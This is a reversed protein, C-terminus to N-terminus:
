GTASAPVAHLGPWAVPGPRLGPDSLVFDTVAEAMQRNTFCFRFSQDYVSILPDRRPSPNDPDLDVNDATAQTLFLLPRVAGWNAARMAEALEKARYSSWGGVVALPAPDRVALAKVWDEQTADDTVKYWRIRLSGAYGQRRVVIEPVATTHVPFAGSDDV